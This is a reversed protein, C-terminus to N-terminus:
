ANELEDFFQNVMEETIFDESIMIDNYWIDAPDLMPFAGVVVTLAFMELYLAIVDTSLERCHEVEIIIYYERGRVDLVEAYLGDFVDNLSDQIEKYIGAIDKIKTNGDYLPHKACLLIEIHKNAKQKRVKNAKSKYEEYFFRKRKYFQTHEVLQLTCICKGFTYIFM